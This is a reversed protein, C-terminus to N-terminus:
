FEIFRQISRRRGGLGLITFETTRLCDLMLEMIPSLHLSFRSSVNPISSLGDPLEGDKLDEIGLGYNTRKALGEISKKIGEL